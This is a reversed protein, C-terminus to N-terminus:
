SGSSSGTSSGSGGPSGGSATSGSGSGSAETSGSGGSSKTEGKKADGSSPKDASGGSESGSASKGEDSGSSAPAKKAYDTIYWGTGKFQIAPSSLLRNAVGSCVPCTDVVPDSYKQIREFRKECAECLYEYLPM